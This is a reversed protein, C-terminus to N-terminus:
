IVIPIKKENSYQVSGIYNDYCRVACLKLSAGVTKSHHPVCMTRAFFFYFGFPLDILM